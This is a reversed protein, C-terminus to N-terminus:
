ASVIGWTPSVSGDLTLTLNQQIIGEKPQTQGLASIYGSFTLTENPTMSTMTLVCSLSEGGTFANYLLTASTNDRYNLVFDISGLDILGQVKKRVNGSGYCTVDIDEASMNIDGIEAMCFGDFIDTGDTTTLSISIQKASYPM